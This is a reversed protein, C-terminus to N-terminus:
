RAYEMYENGNWAKSMQKKYYDVCSIYAQVQRKSGACITQAGNGDVLM